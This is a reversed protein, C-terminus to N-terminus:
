LPRGKMLEYNQIYINIFVVLLQLQWETFVKLAWERRWNLRSSDMGLTKRPCGVKSTLITRAASVTGRLSNTGGVLADTVVSCLKIFTETAPVESEFSTLKCRGQHFRSFFNTGCFFKIICYITTGRFNQGAFIGSILSIGILVQPHFLPSPM